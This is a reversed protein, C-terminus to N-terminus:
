EHLVPVPDIPSFPDKKEFPIPDPTAKDARYKLIWRVKKRAPFTIFDVTEEFGSDDIKRLQLVNACQLIKGKADRYIIKLWIHWIIDLSIEVLAVAPNQQEQFANPKLLFRQVPRGLVRSPGLYIMEWYLFPMSLDFLSLGGCEPLPQSPNEVAIFTGDSSQAWCAANQSSLIYSFKCRDEQFWQGELAGDITRISLRCSGQAPGNTQFSSAWRLDIQTPGIEQKAFNKWVEVAESPSLFRAHQVASLGTCIGKSFLWFGFFYRQM